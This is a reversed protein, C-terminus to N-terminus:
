AFRKKLVSAGLWFLLADVGLVILLNPWVQGWGAGMNAVRHLTDVLYHSPIARAWGTISGPLVIGFAPVGLLVLPIMGLSMVSLMDKGTSALLFGIGTVMLAGLLLAALIILPQRRFGGVILMLLTAQGFTLLVSTIGKGLLLERVGLPTVLLARLTGAQIEDALLSALGMTEMMLVMIVLLPLMRDRPPVQQGAMDPGLTEEHARIDLPAGSLSFSLSEVAVVIVERIEQPLDSPLYIHVVPKLGAAIQEPMGDPLAVGGTVQRELVAQRLAEESDMALFSIGEEALLGAVAQSTGPAHIALEVVEDVTRPLALYLGVYAVLGLVTIFAFFRNRFFITLDKVVLPMVTHWKM